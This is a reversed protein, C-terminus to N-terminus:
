TPWDWSESTPLLEGTPDRLWDTHHARAHARARALEFARDGDAASRSIALAILLCTPVYAIVAAVILWTPLSFLLDSLWGPQYFLIVVIAAGGATTAISLWLTARRHTM